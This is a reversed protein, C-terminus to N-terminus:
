RFGEGHIERVVHRHTAIYITLPKVVNMWDLTTEEVSGKGARNSGTELTDM